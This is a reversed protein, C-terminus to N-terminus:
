SSSSTRRRRCGTRNRTRARAVREPHLPRGFRRRQVQPEPARQDLLPQASERRLLIGRQVDDAVLLRRRAATQGKDFHMVYKNAGNYPKGDADAKRPRISRMRRAPQRRTRHRHRPRSQPLRHRLHRDQHSSGATSREDGALPRSSCGHDTRVGAKPVDAHRSARRRAEVPTSTRAPCSASAQGDKRGDARRGRCASQGEDAEGAAHLLEGADLANVQDRVATKMDIGPDVKGPPPTYPKGYASLPVLTCRTRCRTCPRTTKRRAPATSAASSGSWAPRRSTSRSARPCSARGARGPSPTRRRGTGTTRKGPVQFVTTWGDLMPFLYYRDGRGAPEPRLAGQGRGGLRDLVAHGRQAGDRRQVLREPYQARKVFQGMPARTGEPKAVNTMVRRTMEMTVLPYGYIYADTALWFDELGHLPDLSSMEFAQLAPHWLPYLAAGLGAQLARRRTLKM